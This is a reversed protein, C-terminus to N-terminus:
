PSQGPPADDPIEIFRPRAIPVPGLVDLDADPHKKEWRIIARINCAMLAIALMLGTNVLGMVRIWGRNVSGTGSSQLIGFTGEIKLRRKYSKHWKKSGHRVDQRIKEDVEWSVLITKQTCAKGPNAPPNDALPM